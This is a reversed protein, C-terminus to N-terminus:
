EDSHGGKEAADTRAARNEIFSTIWLELIIFLHGIWLSNVVGNGRLLYGTGFGFLALLATTGLVLLLTPLVQLLGRLIRRLEKVSVDFYIFRSILMIVMYLIISDYNDDEYIFKIYLFVILMYVMAAIRLAGRVDDSLQRVPFVFHDFLDILLIAVALAAVLFFGSYRDWVSYFGDPLDFYRFSILFFIGSFLLISTASFLLEAYMERRISFIHSPTDGHPDKKAARVTIGIMVAHVLVLVGASILAFWLIGPFSIYHQIYDILSM